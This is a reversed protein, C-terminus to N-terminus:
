RASGLPVSAAEETEKQSATDLNILEERGGPGGSVDLALVPGVGKAYLKYELVNPEITITDKTLLANDFQGFSSQVMEDTSLVEGNDEAEGKYYEQRYLMGDQPHAPMIIGPKAGDVGAEFSGEKSMLKGSEFEATNEGLYWIAGEKDQAYWDITDEIIEGDETATDRVVRATVGNAIKKTGDSVTVVIRLQTGKEDIERFTWRTGPNMPWYPNDIKTTFTKPDLNVPEAGQPLDRPSGSGAGSQSKDAGANESNNTTCGAVFLMEFAAVIAIVQFRRMVHSKERLRPLRKSM